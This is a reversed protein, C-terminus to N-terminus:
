KKQTHEYNGDPLFGLTPQQDYLRLFKLLIVILTAYQFVNTNWNMFGAHYSSPMLLQAGM